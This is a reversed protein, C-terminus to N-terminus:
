NENHPATLEWNRSSNTNAVGSSRLYMFDDAKNNIRFSFGLKSYVQGNRSRLFFTKDLAGIGNNNGFTENPQYGNEPAAYTVGWEKDSTEVFGGDVVEFNISWKQPNHESVEGSPRNVKIKIDGGNPVIRGAVLDFSIPADTFPIKYTKGIDVLPEAGQLKWMKIVIPNGPDPMIREPYMYSYKFETRTTAIVYGEKRPWIGLSEGKGANIQFFGNADSAVSIHEAASGTANYIITNATIRAGVVPNGFQDEVKGYFVIPVDNMTALGEKIEDGRSPASPTSVNTEVARRATLIAINKAEHAHSNVVTQENTPSLMPKSEAAPIITGTQRKSFWIFLAILGIVGSCLLVISRRVEM